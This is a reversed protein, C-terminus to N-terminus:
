HTVKASRHTTSDHVYILVIQNTTRRNFRASKSVPSEPAIEKGRSFRRSIRPNELRKKRTVVSNSGACVVPESAFMRDMPDM